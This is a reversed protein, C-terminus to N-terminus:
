KLQTFEQIHGEAEQGEGAQDEPGGLINNGSFSNGEGCLRQPASFPSVELRM